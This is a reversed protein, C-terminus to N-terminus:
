AITGVIQIDVQGAASTQALPAVGRPGVWPTELNIVYTLSTSTTVVKAVILGGTLAGFGITISLAASTSVIIDTVSVVETAAVARSNGGSDFLPITAGASADASSLRGHFTQGIM